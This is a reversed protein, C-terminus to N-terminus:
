AEGALFEQKRRKMTLRKIKDRETLVAYQRRFYVCATDRHREPPIEQDCDAVDPFTLSM